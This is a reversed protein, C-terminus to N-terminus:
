LIKPAGKRLQIWEDKELRSPSVDFINILKALDLLFSLMTTDKSTFDAKLLTLIACRDCHEDERGNGSRSFAAYKLRNLFLSMWTRCVAWIVLIILTLSPTGCPSNAERAKLKHIFTMSYWRWWAKAPLPAAIFPLSYNNASPKGLSRTMVAPLRSSATLIDFLRFKKSVWILRFSLVVNIHFANKYTACTIIM